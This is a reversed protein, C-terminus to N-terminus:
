SITTIVHVNENVAVVRDSHTTVFVVTYIAMEVVTIKFLFQAIIIDCVICEKSSEHFIDVYVYTRRIYKRTFKREQVNEM